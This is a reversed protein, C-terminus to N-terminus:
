FLQIGMIDLYYWVAVICLLICLINYFLDSKFISPLHNKIASFGIYLLFGCISGITNLLIDDVDFSRGIYHQVFEVTFSTIISVILIHSVKKAKIYSSVFDSTISAALTSLLIETSFNKHLEELSFVAGALPASFAGALGAAAGCTMLMKEETKLKKRLKSFGKGVMAGLQISPGERGLSLGAGIACLGGAFKALIIQWWNQEIQGLLEGKVQPIGSGTCLPVRRSCFWVAIYACFLLALAAILGQWSSEAMHLVSGRLSEAKELSLRFFSVLLGTLLGVAAGEAILRYKNREFHELTLRIRSSM